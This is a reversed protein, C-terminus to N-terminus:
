SCGARIMRNLIVVQGLGWVGLRGKRSGTASIVKYFVVYDM